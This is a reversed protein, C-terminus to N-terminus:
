ILIQGPVYSLEPAATTQVQSYILYRRSQKYIIKGTIRNNNQQYKVNFAVAKFLTFIKVKRQSILSM